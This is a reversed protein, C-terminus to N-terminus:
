IEFFLGALHFPSHICSIPYALCTGNYRLPFSLGPQSSGGGTGKQQEVAKRPKKLNSVPFADRPPPISTIEREKVQTREERRGLRGFSSKLSTPRATVRLNQNTSFGLKQRHLDLNQHFKEDLDGSLDALELPKPPLFILLIETLYLSQSYFKSNSIRQDLSKGM